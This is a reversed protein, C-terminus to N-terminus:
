QGEGTTPAPVIGHAAEAHRLGNIFDSRAAADARNYGAGTLIANVRDPTLPVRAPQALAARLNAHVTAMDTDGYISRRHLWDFIRLADTAAERLTPTTM